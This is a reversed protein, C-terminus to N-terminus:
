WPGRGCSGRFGDAYPRVRPPEWPWGEILGGALVLTVAVAIQSGGSPEGFLTAIMVTASVAATM